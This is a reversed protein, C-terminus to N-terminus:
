KEGSATSDFKNTQSAQEPWTVELADIIEPRFNERYTVREAMKHPDRASLRMRNDNLLEGKINLDDLDVRNQAFSASSYILFSVFGTLCVTLCLVQQIHSRSDLMHFDGGLTDTRDTGKAQM